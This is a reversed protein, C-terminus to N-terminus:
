PLLEVREKQFGYVADRGTVDEVQVADDNPCQDGEGRQALKVGKQGVGGTVAKAGMGVDGECHQNCLDTLM